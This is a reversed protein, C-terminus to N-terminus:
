GRGQPNYKPLNKHVNFRSLRKMEKRGRGREERREGEGKRVKKKEEVEDEENM